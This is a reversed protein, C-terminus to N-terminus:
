YAASTMPSSMEDADAAFEAEFDEDSANLANLIWNRDNDERQPRQALRAKREFKDSPKRNTKAVAHRRLHAPLIVRILM